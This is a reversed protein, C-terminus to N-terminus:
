VFLNRFTNIDEPPYPTELQNAQWVGQPWLPDSTFRAIVHIHLQSVINGLSGVNLKDPKFHDKILSSLQSIEDMLIHQLSQPLQYIDQIHHERPLLIFWPYNANNKLLVRCLPWDTMTICSANILPDIKFM